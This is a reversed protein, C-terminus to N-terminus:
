CIGHSHRYICSPIRRPLNVHRVWDFIHCASQQHKTDPLVVALQPVICTSTGAFAVM